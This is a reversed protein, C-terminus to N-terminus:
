WITFRAATLPDAQEMLTRVGRVILGHKIPGGPDDPRGSRWPSGRQQQESNPYSKVIPPAHCNPFAHKAPRNLAGFTSDTSTVPFVTLPALPLRHFQRSRNPAPLCM